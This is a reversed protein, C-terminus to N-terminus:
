PLFSNLRSNSFAKTLRWIIPSVRLVGKAYVYRIVTQSLLRNVYQPIAPLPRLVDVILVIRDEEANNVVEHQLSDDFLIAKREEWVYWRDSVRLSPPNEKPIKLGLHYRLYGRYPGHHEPVSKGGELLSFFAQFLDPVEDLLACTKPCLARNKEWREGMAYLMLVKWDRDRYYERSHRQTLDMVHYKMMVPKGSLIAELEEKIESYHETLRNLAPFASAIEFFVPRNEAGTYRDFYLNLMALPSILDFTRDVYSRLKTLLKGM